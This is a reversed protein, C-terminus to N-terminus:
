FCTSSVATTGSSQGDSPMADLGAPPPSAAEAVTYFLTGLFGRYDAFDGEEAGELPYRLVASGYLVDLEPASALAIGGDVLGASRGFDQFRLAPARLTVWFAQRAGGRIAVGAFRSPPLPALTSAARGAVTGNAVPRFGVGRAARSAADRWSGPRTWVEYAVPATPALLLDMAVITVSTVNARVQIDFLV